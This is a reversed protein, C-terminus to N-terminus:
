LAIRKQLCHKSCSIVCFTPLFIGFHPNGALNQAHQEIHKEFNSAPQTM